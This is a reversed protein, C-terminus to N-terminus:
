TGSIILMVATLIVSLNYVVNNRDLTAKRNRQSFQSSLKLPKYYNILKINQNDTPVIHTKLIDNLKIKDSKFNDAALTKFFFNINVSNSNSSNNQKILKTLTRNIVKEVFSQPFNNNLKPNHM